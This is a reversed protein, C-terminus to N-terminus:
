FIYFSVEAWDTCHISEPNSSRLETRLLPFSPSNVRRQTWVPEPAWRAEQGTPIPPEKGPSLADLRSDTWDSRELASILIRPAIGGSGQVDEHRSPVKVSGSSHAYTRLKLQRNWRFSSDLLRFWLHFGCPYRRM